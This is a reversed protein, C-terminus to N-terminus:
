RRVEAVYEPTREACRERETSVYDFLVKGFDGIVVLESLDIPTLPIQLRLADKGNLMWPGVGSFFFGGAEVADCLAPTGQDELPLSVYIAGLRCTARLDEVAQRVRQATEEGIAEVTITGIRDGRVIEAHVVGRGITESAAGVVIPLGLQEYIRAIIERHRQPPYITRPERPRLPKVYLMCSQRQATASLEMHRALFGRPLEGLTVGCAKAGFSQSAHQTRPHDTVPESYYAALGIATAEQEARERLRNLLDRGRHAPLVLAGGADAIPEDAHRALAYHGVVEGDNAVAVISLYHGSANLEILRAPVYVATLDYAYGYTLYFARAVGAADCPEFRRITYEQEQALPVDEQALPGSDDRTIGHRREVLLRLESGATGHLRWHAADVNAALENWKPDRQALSDDIPLGREVLSLTLHLPTSRAVLRIPERAEVMAGEVISAFGQRVAAIAGRQQEETLESRRAADSAFAEVLPTFAAEAPVILEMAFTM